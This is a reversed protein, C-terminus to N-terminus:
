ENRLAATPDVEAARTAPLWVAALGVTGMLLAVTALVAFPTPPFGFLFAGFLRLSALAIGLGLLLGAAVPALSHLAIDRCVQEARAGLAM